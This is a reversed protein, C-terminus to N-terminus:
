SISSPFICRDECVCLNHLRIPIFFAASRNNFLEYGNVAKRSSPWWRPHQFDTSRPMFQKTCSNFSATVRSAAPPSPPGCENTIVNAWQAARAKFSEVTSWVIAFRNNAPITPRSWALSSCFDFITRHCTTRSSTTQITTQIKPKFRFSQSGRLLIARGTQIEESAQGAKEATECHRQVPIEVLKVLEEIGQCAGAWFYAAFTWCQHQSARCNPRRPEGDLSFLLKRM